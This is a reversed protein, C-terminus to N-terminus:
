TCLLCFIDLLLIVYLISNGYILYYFLNLMRHNKKTRHESIDNIFINSYKYHKIYRIIYIYKLM